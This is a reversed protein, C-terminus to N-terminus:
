NEMSHKKYSKRMTLVNQGDEWAYEVRDMINRVMYVGLGGIEREEMPLNIDPDENLLPNYPIGFDSVIIIIEKNNEDIEYSLVINGQSNPYAYNIVNVIVEECALKIQYVVKRDLKAEEIGEIIFDLGKDLNEIIAPIEMRNM